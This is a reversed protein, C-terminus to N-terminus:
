RDGYPDHSEVAAGNGDGGYPGASTKGKKGPAVAKKNAVGRRVGEGQNL